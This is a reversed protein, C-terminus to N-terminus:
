QKIWRGSRIRQLKQHFGIPHITVIETKDEYEDYCIMMDREKDNYEVKKIAIKHKTFIDFYKETSTMIIKKPMDNQVNRVKMRFKLHETYIIKKM